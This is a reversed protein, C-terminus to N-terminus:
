CPIVELLSCNGFVELLKWGIWGRVCGGLMYMNERTEEEQASLGERQRRMVAAVNSYRKV